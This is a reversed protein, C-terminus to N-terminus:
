AMAREIIFRATPTPERKGQEWNQISKESVSFGKMSVALTLAQAGEAQTFGQEKRWRKLQTKFKV